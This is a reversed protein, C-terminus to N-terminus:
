KCKYLDGKVKICGPPIQAKAPVKTVSRLEQPVIEKPLSKIVPQVVGTWASGLVVAITSGLKMLEITGEEISKLFKM